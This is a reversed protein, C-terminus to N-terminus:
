EAPSMTYTCTYCNAVANHTSSQMCTTAAIKRLARNPHPTQPLHINYNNLCGEHSFVPSYCSRLHIIISSKSVNCNGGDRFINNHHVRKTPTRASVKDMNKVSVKDEDGEEAVPMMLGNDKGRHGHGGEEKKTM